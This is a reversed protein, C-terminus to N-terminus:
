PLRMLRQAAAVLDDLGVEVRGKPLTVDPSVHMVRLLSALTKESHGTWLIIKLRSDVEKFKRIWRLGTGENDLCGIIIVAPRREASAFTHLAVKPDVFTELAVDKQSFGIELMGLTVKDGVALTVSSHGVSGDCPRMICAKALGRDALAARWM